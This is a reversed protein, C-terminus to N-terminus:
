ARSMLAPWSEPCAWKSVLLLEEAPELCLSWLVTFVRRYKLETHANEPFPGCTEDSELTHGRGAFINFGSSAFILLEYDCSTTKQPSTQMEAVTHFLFWWRIFVKAETLLLLLTKLVSALSTLFVRQSLVCGMTAKSTMGLLRWKISPLKKRQVCSSEVWM